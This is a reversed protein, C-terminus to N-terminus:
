MIYRFPSLVFYQYNNQEYNGQQYKKNKEVSNLMKNGKSNDNPLTERGGGSLNKARLFM